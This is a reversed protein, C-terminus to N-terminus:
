QESMELPTIRIQHWDTRGGFLAQQDRKVDVALGYSRYPSDHVTVAAFEICFIVPNHCREPFKRRGRILCPHVYFLEFNLHGLAFLRFRFDTFQCFSQFRLNSTQHLCVNYANHQEIEITRDGLCICRKEVHHLEVTIIKRGTSYAPRVQRWGFPTGAILTGHYLNLRGSCDLWVLLLIEPFITNSDWDHDAAGEKFAALVVADSKREIEGLLLAGLFPQLVRLSGQM